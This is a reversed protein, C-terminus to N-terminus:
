GREEKPESPAYSKPYTRTYVKNHINNYFSRWDRIETDNHAYFSAANFIYINGTDFRTGTNGDWLDGHILCPKISRGDNELAGLLKTIVDSFFRCELQDLAEWHGNTKNDEQAVHKLM